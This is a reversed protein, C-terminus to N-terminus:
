NRKAYINLYMGMNAADMLGSITAIFPRLLIEGPKGAHVRRSLTSPNLRSITHAKQVFFGHKDLLRGLSKETFFNVHEPPCIHPENIGLIYRILSNYNPVAVALIGGPKLATAAKRIWLDFDSAHELVQSMLIASFAKEGAAYDEFSSEVPTVGTIEKFIQSEAAAFELATVNFGAQIACKSFFGYGAGIDLLDNGVVPDLQLRIESIIRESDLTSNPYEKELRLIQSIDARTTSGHGSKGYIRSIDEPTPRFASFSFGCDSSCCRYIEFVEEQSRKEGWLEAREGCILCKKVSM